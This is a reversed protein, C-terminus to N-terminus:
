ETNRSHLDNLFCSIRAILPEIQPQREIPRFSGLESIRLSIEEAEEAFLLHGMDAFRRALEVQHDNVHERYTRKRPMVLLPKNLSLALSIIGTGAHSILKSAETAKTEFEEPELWRSWQFHAPQYKGQGIQAFIQEPCAKQAAYEDVAKVLRDFPFQTGVSLFIV